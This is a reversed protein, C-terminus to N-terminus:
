NLELKSFAAQHRATMQNNGLQGYVFALKQHIQKRDEFTLLCKEFETAAEDYREMKMLVTALTDRFRADGPFRAVVNQILELARELDPSEHHALLWALNNAVNSFSDDHRYAQEMHWQAREMEGELWYINSVSFHSLALSKGEAILNELENKVNLMAQQSGVGQYNFILRNYAPIHSADHSLASQVHRLRVEFSLGDACAIDHQNVFYNALAQRLQKGDNLALGALLIAEASEYNGLRNEINGLAVRWPISEPRENLLRLFVEKADRLTSLYNQQQGMQRYLEALSVWREPNERAARRLYKLADEKQDISLYYAVWADDLGPSDAAHELHFRLCRLNDSDVGSAVVQMAKFRHAAPFGPQGEPTLQDILRNGREEEDSNILAIAFNYRDENTAHASLIVRNLYTSAMSFDKARLSAVGHSRYRAIITDEQCWVSVLAIAVVMVAACAPIGLLFEKRQERSARRLFKLPLCGVRWIQHLVFGTLRFPLSCAKWTRSEKRTRKSKRYLKKSSSEMLNSLGVLDHMAKRYTKRIRKRRDLTKM